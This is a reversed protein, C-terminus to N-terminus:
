VFIYYSITGFLVFLFSSIWLGFDGWFSNVEFVGSLPPELTVVVKHIKGAERVAARIILTQQERDYKYTDDQELGHILVQRGRTLMDPLYIETDRKHELSKAELEVPPYVTLSSGSTSSTLPDMWHYEFAGTNMEYIVKVPLGATKAAYPRIVARLIRGGADLDSSTQHLDPQSHARSRSFWSFNEGNWYDGNIDDNDPNYNWM